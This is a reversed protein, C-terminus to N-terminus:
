LSCHAIVFNTKRPTTYYKSTNDFTYSGLGIGLEYTKSKLLRQSLKIRESSAGNSSRNNMLLNVVTSKLKNEISSSMRDDFGGFKLDLRKNPHLDIPPNLIFDESECVFCKMRTTKGIKPREQIQLLRQKSTWWREDCKSTRWILRVEFYIASIKIVRDRQEWKISEGQHDEYSTVCNNEM